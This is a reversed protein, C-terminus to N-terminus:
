KHGLDQAGQRNTFSDADGEGATEVGRDRDRPHALLTRNGAGVGSVDALVVLGVDGGHGAAGSGVPGLDGPQDVAALGQDLFAQGGQGAPREM